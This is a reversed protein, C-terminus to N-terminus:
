KWKVGCLQTRQSTAKTPRFEIIQNRAPCRGVDPASIWTQLTKCFHIFCFSLHLRWITYYKKFVVKNGCSSIIKNFSDFTFWTKPFFFFFFFSFSSLFFFVINYLIGKTINVTFDCRGLHNTRGHMGGEWMEVKVHHILYEMEELKLFKTVFQKKNEWM